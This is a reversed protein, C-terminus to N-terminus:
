RERRLRQPTSPRPPPPNHPGRRLLRQPRPLQLPRRLRLQQHYRELHRTAGQEVRSASVPCVTRSRTSPYTCVRSELAEKGQVFIMPRFDRLAVAASVRIVSVRYFYNRWFREEDVTRPVLKFRAQWCAVCAPWTLFFVDSNLWEQLARLLCM